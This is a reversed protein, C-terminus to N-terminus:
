DSGSVLTAHAEATFLRNRVPPAEPITIRIFPHASQVHCANCAEMTAKYAAEFAPVDGAEVAKEVAALQTENVAALVSAVDVGNEMPRLLEVSEIIEEMEHLEYKALEKNGNRGAYWVASFRRALTNMRDGLEPAAICPEHTGAHACLMQIDGHAHAVEAQTDRAKAFALAGLACGLLGLGLAAM